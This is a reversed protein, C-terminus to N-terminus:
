KVKRREKRKRGIISGITQGLKKTQPPVENSDGKDERAPNPPASVRRKKRPNGKDAEGDGDGGDRPRKAKEKQNKKTRCPESEPKNSRGDDLMKEGKSSAEETEHKARNKQVANRRQVVQVNEISFEVILTGRSKSRAESTGGDEKNGEDKRLKEKELEAVMRKLRADTQEEEEGGEGVKGKAVKKQKDREVKILRELDEKWWTRLLGDVDSNGNAWRLVRLADAHTSMEIFGYGCSRGKGTIADVRDAQRVIKAQKVGSNGKHRTWVLKQLQKAKRKGSKSMTTATSPASSADSENGAESADARRRKEEREAGSQGAPDRLEDESLGDREGTKVEKEFARVAYAALRKLMRETVYLPIQRVSLRTKSIYLSPNSKLLARRSNFSNTRRELDTPSVHTASPSNPLIVGERLLYMNRKDAKERAREGMEKLRGAEDRTVARIVDLARGHLVLNQALSASPDPTLISPLTFPNNKPVTMTNGTTEARLLESQEIVKDADEKNWFCAFGTGRSRGIAHDMTIRAYRLPGFARFLTRLEDETADYPINRIFLTTGVDTQPLHPKVPKDDQNREEEEGDQESQDSGSENGSEEDSDEHDHIGLGGQEGESEEQDSRSQVDDDNGDEDAMVQEIKAKEEEWRDKSLAWDVAMIRENKDKGTNNAEAAADDEDSDNDETVPVEAKGKALKLEMRREKKKKQKGKVLEEAVGARLVTGNREQM